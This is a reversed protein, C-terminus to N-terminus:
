RSCGGFHQCINIYISADEIREVFKAISGSSFKYNNPASGDVGTPFMIFNGLVPAPAPPILMSRANLKLAWSSTTSDHGSGMSHGIQHPQENIVVIRYLYM